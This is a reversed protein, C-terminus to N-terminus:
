YRKSINAQFDTKQENIYYKKKLANKKHKLNPAHEYIVSSMNSDYLKFFLTRAQNAIKKDKGIRYATQVEPCTKESIGMTDILFTYVDDKPAAGTEIMGSITWSGKTVRQDMKEVKNQVSRIDEEAKVSTEVVNILSEAMEINENRVQSNVMKQDKRFRDLKKVKNNLYAQEIEVSVLKNQVQNIKVLLLEFMDFVVTPDNEQLRKKISM